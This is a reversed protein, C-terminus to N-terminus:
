SKLSPKILNKPIKLDLLVGTIKVKLGMKELEKKIDHPTWPNNKPIIIDITCKM